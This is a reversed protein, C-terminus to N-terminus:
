IPNQERKPPLGAAHAPPLVAVGAPAPLSFAMPTSTGCPICASARECACALPEHRLLKGNAASRRRLAPVAPGGDEDVGTYEEFGSAVDTGAPTGESITSCDGSRSIWDFTSPEDLVTCPDDEGAIGSGGPVSVTGDSAEAESAPQLSLWLSAVFLVMESCSARMSRLRVQPQVSTTLRM